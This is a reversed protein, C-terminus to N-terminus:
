STSFRSMPGTTIMWYLPFMMVVFLVAAIIAMLVNKIKKRRKYSKM